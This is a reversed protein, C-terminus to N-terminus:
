RDADEPPSKLRVHIATGGEKRREYDITGGWAEVIRRTIALGLGTGRTKTSFSPEFLRDLSEAPIGIGDDLVSIWAWGPERAWDLRVLVERGGAALVADRSNQILNVLIRRFGEPDGLLPRPEGVSELEYAIGEEGPAFLAVSLYNVALLVLVIVWFRPRMRRPSEAPKGPEDRTTRPLPTRARREPSDEAM